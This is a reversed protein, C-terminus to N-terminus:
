EDSHDLKLITEEGERRLFIFGCKELVRRSAINHNVVHAFLPRDKVIRLFQALASTAIGKGWFTKGIWYGVEREGEMEFGVINGAVQGNFLITKKDLKPNAMIKAWHTRFAEWERAPFGAMQNAVPDSQHDFFIPLDDETVDRLAVRNVQNEDGGTTAM